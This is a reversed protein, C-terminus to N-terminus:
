IDWGEASHLQVDADMNPSNEIAYLLKQRLIAKSSYHPLTLTFFCTQAHPLYMDANERNDIQLKFNLSEGQTSTPMRSRAWVFRLFLTRQDDTMEVLVEWFDTVIRSKPDVNEYDTNRRLHEVDVRRDGTFLQRVEAATFLSLVELPIVQGIGDLLIQLPVQSECLRLSEVKSVYDRWNSITLPILDGGPVLPVRTGDSLHTTLTLDRWQEPRYDLPYQSGESQERELAMGVGEVDALTKVALVDIQELHSRNIPQSVVSRWLLMPIDLALPLNHRVATGMLKGLFHLLEIATPSLPPPALTFTDQNFGVSQCRNPSPILLPLLCRESAGHGAIVCDGMLEDVIAEFVARYPGGYDDVGEGIFKVKFGRKQGGHGKCVHSRRFNAGSWNRLEKYLQGMVTQRSRDVSNTILSLSQVTAKVRNVKVQKIERPDEYEDAHSPTYTTTSELLLDYYIRKTQSFLVRRLLRLRRAGSYQFLSRDSISEAQPFTRHVEIRLVTGDDESRLIDSLDKLRM